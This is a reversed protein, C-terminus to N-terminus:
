DSKLTPRTVQGTLTVADGDVRYSSNDFVGYYPLMVLEHRVERVLRNNPAGGVRDATSPGAAPTPPTRLSSATTAHDSCASLLTLGAIALTGSLLYYRM